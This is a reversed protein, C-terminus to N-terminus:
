VRTFGQTGEHHRYGLTRLARLEAGLREQFSGWDRNQPESWIAESLACMRPLVMYEVHDWSKMYETWVCGQAGIIHKQAYDELDPPIPDFDYVKRLLTPTGNALPELTPEGQYYDFYVQDHPTMVVDHNQRAARIGGETGRWSMVTAHPALGGELIEDWGIISRGHKMLFKEIRKIFYSQLKQPDEIGERRMVEAVKPSQEWQTKPAEDGGIHIYKSPFLELVELLVQELFHFTEESPCYIEEFIGWQTSVEFPGPVCAFEPYAALAALSHGPMEIEPIVTICRARAYAVVDRIQAQTYFGGYPQKDGIEKRYAGVSTLKPYAKIEIRWGQDETLHWHFTNFKYRQLLDIYKKVCSVDFFHRGVDLHMGRYRFRPQDEIIARPIAWPGDNDLAGAHELLQTLSTLGLHIGAVSASEVRIGDATIALRYGEDGLPTTSRNLVVGGRTHEGSPLVFRYQGRSSDRASWTQAVQKLEADQIPAAIPIEPHVVTTGGLPKVTSPAPILGLDPM